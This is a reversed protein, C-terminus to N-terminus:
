RWNDIATVIADIDAASLRKSTSHLMEAFHQKAPEEFPFAINGDASLSTALVDGQPSLIAMWPIANLGEVMSESLSKAHPMRVDLTVHIYDRSILDAESALFRSLRICPGCNPGSMQVLVKKDAQAAEALAADLQTQADPFEQAHENLFDLLQLPDLKGDPRMLEFDTAAVTTGDPRVITLSSTSDEPLTIKWEALQRAQEHTLCQVRYNSFAKSLEPSSQESRWASYFDDAARSYEGAILVLVQQKVIDATDLHEKFKEAVDHNIFARLRGLFDSVQHIGDQTQAVILGAFYENDKSLKDDAVISAGERQWSEPAVNARIHSILVSPDFHPEGHRDVRYVPLDSVDFIVMLLPKSQDSQKEEAHSSDTSLLQLIALCALLFYRTSM